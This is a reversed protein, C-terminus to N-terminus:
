DVLLSFEPRSADGFDIEFVRDIGELTSGGIARVDDLTNSASVSALTNISPFEEEIDESVHDVAFDIPSLSSIPYFESPNRWSTLVPCGPNLFGPHFLFASTFLATAAHFRKAPQM